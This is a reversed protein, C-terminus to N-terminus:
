ALRQINIGGDCVAQTQIGGVPLQLVEREPIQMGPTVGCQCLGQQFGPPAPAIDDFTYLHLDLRSELGLLNGHLDGPAFFRKVGDVALHVFFVQGKGLHGINVTEPDDDVAQVGTVGRHAYQVLQVFRQGALELVVDRDRFDIAVLRQVRGQHPREPGINFELHAGLGHM